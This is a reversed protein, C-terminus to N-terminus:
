NVNVPYDEDYGYKKSTANKTIIFSSFAENLAPGIVSNDINQITSKTSICSSMLLVM